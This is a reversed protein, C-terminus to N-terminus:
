EEEAGEQPVGASSRAQREEILYHVILLALGLFLPVLGILMWPGFGLPFQEEVIGSIPWLGIILALGLMALGVGCGILVPSRRQGAARTLKPYEGPEIGAEVMAIIERHKMWRVLVVVGLIVGVLGIPAVCLVFEMPDM